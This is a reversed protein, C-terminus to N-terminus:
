AVGDIEAQERAIARRLVFFMVVLFAGYSVIRLWFAIFGNWALPGSRMAAAGAAPAMLVSIVVCFPTVWKPFIPTAGADLWVAIAICMCQGIIMGVPATFVIWAFDNLMQTIAPDRDPRFAAILWFLDAIALLTAGSVVASLYCYALVQTDTAMRKLQHVIVTFFPVLMIACVNFIIMSARIRDTHAVYFQAVRTASWSAPMPPFFGPFLLFALLLFGGFVASIWLSISQAATSAAPAIARTARLESTSTDM